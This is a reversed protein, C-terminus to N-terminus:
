SATLQSKPHCSVITELIGADAPRDPLQLARRIGWHVFRTVLLLSPAALRLSGGGGKPSHALQGMQATWPDWDLALPHSVGQCRSAFDHRSLGSKAAPLTLLLGRFLISHFSGSVPPSSPLHRSPRSATGPDRARLKGFDTLKSTAWTCRRLGACCHQQHPRTTEM